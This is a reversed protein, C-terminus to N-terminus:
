FLTNAASINRIIISDIYRKFAGRIQNNAMTFEVGFYGCQIMSRVTTDIWWDADQRVIFGHHNMFVHLDNESEAWREPYKSPVITRVMTVLHNQVDQQTAIRTAPREYQAVEGIRTETKQVYQMLANKNKAIEIHARPLAQKLKEFFRGYETTVAGQIHPTDNEGQELQGNVMKVWPLSKLSEWQAHDDDTPNNITISWCSAKGIPM